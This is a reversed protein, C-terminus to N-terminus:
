YNLLRSFDFLFNSFVDRFPRRVVALGKLIFVFLLLECFWTRGDSSMLVGFRSVGLHRDSIWVGHSFVM